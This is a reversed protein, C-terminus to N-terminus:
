KEGTLATFRRNLAHVAIIWIIIIAVMVGAAYPAIVGIPGIFAFMLQQLVSGGSKGLRAGVVDVAAKGKSKSEDDLPIYAMEKTPDFLAYKTSKSLVNQSFGFWVAMYLPTIDLYMAIPAFFDPFIVCAFFGLGTLGLIYPTALAGRKWGLTRVIAGGILIVAVTSLGTVFSLLGMFASYDNKNPFQLSLQNKWSVEVLNISIGYAMVLIAILGLYRSQLLFKFSEAMTLKPKKKKPAAAAAAGLEEPKIKDFVFRNLLFYIIVVGLGCLVVASMLYNLTSGWADGTDVQNSRLSSFYRAVYGAFTVAFNGLLYFHAYFRKAEAVKTVDNAFQWFLFSLVASGWLEALVYFLSYTWYRYIAIVGRFGEPLVTMLWNASEVPHLLERNPYIVVAFLGFFLIFPVITIYFLSKKSFGSSLKSYVLFFVLASPVVAWFKLFAITESGAETVVLVDKINRLVTYNFLILAIMLAMPLFQKHEAGYIPWLFKRVKSLFSPSDITKVETESMYIKLGM